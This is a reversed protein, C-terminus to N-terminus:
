TNPNFNDYTKILDSVFTVQVELLFDGGPAQHHAEQGEQEV